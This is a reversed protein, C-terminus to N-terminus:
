AEPSQIWIEVRRNSQRGEETTNCAVPAIEGYGALRMEIHGLSRGWDEELTRKMREARRLSLERNTDFAGVDDSFGVFNIVTGKPQAELYAGLRDLDIEGREDMRSSGSHFRFTTSLRDYDVMENLMERMIRAEYATGDSNLLMRAREGHLVQAQRDVSLTIFGAKTILEDAIPSKVFQVFDQTSRGSDKRNYLYLRRQLFYEETRASFVDPTMKLGCENVLSLARAGRKQALSVYGIANEDAMVATSISTNDVSDRASANTAVAAQDFVADAFLRRASDGEKRQYVVIPADNGGIESWNTIRGAFVDALQATTIQKLPNKPHTIVVLSDVAVIHEQSPDIMNGAGANRLAQAEDPAIRRTSMGLQSTRDLLTAFADVSASSSVQYSAIRPGFGRDAVLDAVIDSGASNATVTAEADLFGAYGELLLPMMGTGMENAGVIKVTAEKPLVGTSEVLSGADNLKPCAAGECHVRRASVRLEGIDTQIIYTENEFGLFIGELDVAGDLSTLKVQNAAASTAAMGILLLPAVAKFVAQLPM